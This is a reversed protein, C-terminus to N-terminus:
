RGNLKRQISDLARLIAVQNVEIRVLREATARTPLEAPRKAIWVQIARIAEKNASGTNALTMSVITGSIIGSLLIFIIGIIWTIPVRKDLRWNNPTNPM